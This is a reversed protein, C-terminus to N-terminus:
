PTQTARGHHSLISIFSFTSLYIDEPLRLSIAFIGAVARPLWFSFPHFADYFSSGHILVLSSSSLSYTFVPAHVTNTAQGVGGHSSCRPRPFPLPSPVHDNPVQSILKFIPCISPLYAEEEVHVGSELSGMEGLEQLLFSPEYGLLTALTSTTTFHRHNNESYQRRASEDM